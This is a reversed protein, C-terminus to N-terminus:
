SACPIRCGSPWAAGPGRAIAASVRAGPRARCPRRFAASGTFAACQAPFSSPPGVRGCSRLAEGARERRTTGFSGCASVRPPATAKMRRRARRGRLSVRWGPGTLSPTRRVGLWPHESTWRYTPEVPAHGSVPRRVGVSVRPDPPRGTAPTGRRAPGHSTAGSLRRHPTGPVREEPEKVGEPYRGGPRRDSRSARPSGNVLASGGPGPPGPPLM